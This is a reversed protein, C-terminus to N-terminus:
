IYSCTTNCTYGIWLEHEVGTSIVKLCLTVELPQISRKHLCTIGVPIGSLRGIGMLTFMTNNEIVWSDRSYRIQPIVNSTM